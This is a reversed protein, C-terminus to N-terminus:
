IDDVEEVEYKYDQINDWTIFIQRIADFYNSIDRVEPIFNTYQGLTHQLIYMYGYNDTAFYPSVTENINIVHNYVRDHMRVEAIDLNSKVIQIHRSGCIIDRFIKALESLPSDNQADEVILERNDNQPQNYFEIINNPPLTFGKQVLLSTTDQPIQVKHCGDHATGDLNMAYVQNGNRAYVHIHRQNGPGPEGRPPDIRYSYKTGPISQFIQRTENIFGEHDINHRNYLEETIIIDDVVVNALVYKSIAEKLQEIFEEMNM